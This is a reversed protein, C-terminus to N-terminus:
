KKDEVKYSIINAFSRHKSSELNEWEFLEARGTFTMGNATIVNVITNADVPCEGGKWDIWKTM